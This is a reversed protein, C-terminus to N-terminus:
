RPIRNADSATHICYLFCHRGPTHALRRRRIYLNAVALDTNSRHSKPSDQEVARYYNFVFESSKSTAFRSRREKLAAIIRKHQGVPSRKPNKKKRRCHDLTNEDLIIRGCESYTENM